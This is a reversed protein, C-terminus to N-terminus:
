CINPHLVPLEWIEDDVPVSPNDGPHQHQSSDADGSVPSCLAAVPPKEKKEDTEKSAAPLAAVGADNDTQGVSAEKTKTDLGFFNKQVIYRVCQLIVNREHRIEKALLMELLTRRHRQQSGSSGKGEKPRASKRRAMKAAPQLPQRGDESHDRKAAQSIRCVAREPCNRLLAVNEELAASVKLLPTEEPGQDSDSDSTSGYSAVLAALSSTIQKPIVTLGGKGSAATEDKDSDADSNALAGLPDGERPREAERGEPEPARMNWEKRGWPNKQFTGGPGQHRRGEPEREPAARQGKSKMRGFQATELVDGREQKDQKMKKKREINSLTPYNKKREERWRAIEEPTDLKIKKAGPGHMNKWHIHVLKEHATFSCDKASCKVHQSVHEQYKEENKFGRDCTDCFHSFEPEKKKKKKGDSNQNQGVQQTERQHSFHNQPGFTNQQRNDFWPNPHRPGGYWHGPPPYAGPGPPPGFWNGFGPHFNGPHGPPPGHFVPPRLMPRPPLCNVEPAPYNGFNNM